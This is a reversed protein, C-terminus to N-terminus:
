EAGQNNLGLKCAWMWSQDGQGGLSGVLENMKGNM